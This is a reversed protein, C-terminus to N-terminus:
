PHETCQVYCKICIFHRRDILERCSNNHYGGFKSMTDGMHIMIDRLTRFTVGNM